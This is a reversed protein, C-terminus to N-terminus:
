SINIPPTRLLISSTWEFRTVVNFDPFSQVYTPIESTIQNKASSIESPWSNMSYICAACLANCRLTKSKCGTDKVIVKAQTCINSELSCCHYSTDLHHAQSGREGLECSHTLPFTFTIFSYIAAAAICAIRYRIRRRLFRLM